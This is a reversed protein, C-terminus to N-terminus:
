KFEIKLFRRTGVRLVGASDVIFKEDEIRVGNFDVAKQQILRRVENRSKVLGAQTVVDIISLPQTLSLVELDEPIEKSSFVREFERHANDADELSYYQRIIDKALSVKANRPHISKVEELNDDTLLTFYKLMLEDSISMIKGFMDKPTDNIAIYNGLSKSMKNVGDTGELLPMTMVVQPEQGFDKQLDRGVLLNFIQDTGGLEVDAKLVVSDYGQLIPYMFELLSIEQNQELRKKFDQRALMQSVTTHMTLRLIEAVPMKSFWHSNFVVKIKEIDLIRAAQKKYTSANEQVEEPSLTKRLSSRGTPDGICATFDGILFYVEHGLDQFQRLKRLLVTHGLHIDPATPDFGAKIRLPRKERVAAELKKALEEESVIEVAGRKILELQKAIDM